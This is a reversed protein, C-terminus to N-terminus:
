NFVESSKVELVNLWDFNTLKKWNNKRANSTHVVLQEDSETIM